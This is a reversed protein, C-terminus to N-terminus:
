LCERYQIESSVYNVGILSVTILVILTGTRAREREESKNHTHWHAKQTIVQTYQTNQQSGNGQFDSNLRTEGAQILINKLCM